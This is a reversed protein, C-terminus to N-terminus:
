RSEIRPALLYYGHIDGDEISFKIKLPYDNGMKLELDYNKPLAKSIDKLYDKIFIARVDEGNIDIDDESKISSFELKDSDSTSTINLDNDVVTFIIADSLSNESINRIVSNNIKIETNQESLKPISPETMGTPDLLPTDYSYGKAEIKMHESDKMSGEFDMRPSSSIKIDMVDDFKLFKRMFHNITRTNVAIDDDLDLHQFGSKDLHVVVLAVQAPDVVKVKIGEDHSQIIVEDYIPRILKIFKYLKRKTVRIKGKIDESM